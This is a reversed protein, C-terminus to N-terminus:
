CNRYWATWNKNDDTQACSVSFTLVMVPGSLGIAGAGYRPCPVAPHGPQPARAHTFPLPTVVDNSSRRDRRTPRPTPPRRQSCRCRASVQEPQVRERVGLPPEVREHSPRDSGRRSGPDALDGALDGTPVGVRPPRDAHDEVGPRLQEGVQQRPQTLTTRQAGIRARGSGPTAPRVRPRGPGSCTPSSREGSRTVIAAAIRQM